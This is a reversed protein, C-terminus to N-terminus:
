LKLNGNQAVVQYKDEYVIMGPKDTKLIRVNIDNQELISALEWMKNIFEKASPKFWAFTNNPWKKKSYPPVPLKDNFYKFTSKALSAQYSELKGEYRLTEVESFIGYQKQFSDSDSGAVFRLFM